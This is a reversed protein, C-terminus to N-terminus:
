SARTRASRRDSRRSQPVPSRGACGRGGGGITDRGGCTWMRASVPSRRAVRRAKGRRATVGATVRVAGPSASAKARATVITALRLGPTAAITPAHFCAGALGYGILAVRAETTM